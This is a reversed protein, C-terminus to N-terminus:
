AGAKAETAVPPDEILGCDECRKPGDLDTEDIPWLGAYCGDRPCTGFPHFPGSWGTEVRHWGYDLVADLLARPVMDEAM